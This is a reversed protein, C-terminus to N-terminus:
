LSRRESASSSAATAGSSIAKKRNKLRSRIFCGIGHSMANCVAAAIQAKKMSGILTVASVASTAWVSCPGRAQSWRRANGSGRQCRYAALASHTSPTTAAILTSSARSDSSAACSAPQHFGATAALTM